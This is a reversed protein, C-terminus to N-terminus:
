KEELDPGFYSTTFLSFGGEWFYFIQFFNKKLIEPNYFLIHGLRSGFLTGVVVYIIQIEASLHYKKEIQYSKRVFYRGLVVGIAFLFGYWKVSFLESEFVYIDPHWIQHWLKYHQAVM